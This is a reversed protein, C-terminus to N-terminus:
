GVLFGRGGIKKGPSGAFDSLHEKTTKQPVDKQKSVKEKKDEFMKAIDSLEKRPVMIYIGV